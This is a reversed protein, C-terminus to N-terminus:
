MMQTSNDESLLWSWRNEDFHGFSYEYCKTPSRHHLSHQHWVLFGFLQITLCPTEATLEATQDTPPKVNNFSLPVWRVFSKWGRKYMLVLLFSFNPLKIPLKFSLNADFRMSVKLLVGELSWWASSLWGLFWRILLYISAYPVFTWTTQSVFIGSETDHPSQCRNHTKICCAATLNWRSHVHFRRTGSSQFIAFHEASLSATVLLSLWLLTVACPIVSQWWRDQVMWWPSHWLQEASSM